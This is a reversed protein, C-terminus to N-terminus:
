LMGLAQLYTELTGEQQQFDEKKMKRIAIIRAVIKMDYGRGKGESKIDKIDDSLGKKEEELREIREIISRLEDSAPSSSSLAREVAEDSDDLMEDDSKANRRNNAM